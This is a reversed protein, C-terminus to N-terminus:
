GAGRPPDSRALYSIGPLLAFGSSIALIYVADGFRQAASFLAVERITGVNGLVVLPIRMLLAVAIGAVALKIGIRVLSRWSTNPPVGEPRVLDERLALYAIVASVLEKAALIALVATVGMDAITVASAGVIFVVAGISQLVAEFTFRGVSRLMTATFDFLRNFLVYASTVLVPVFSSGPGADFAGFVPLLLAALVASVAVVPLASFFLEGPSARGASADRSAVLPVGTDSLITFAAALVLLYSYSAFEEVSLLRAALVLFFIQAFKSFGRSVLTVSSRAILRRDSQAARELRHPGRPADPPM